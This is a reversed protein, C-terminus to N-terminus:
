LLVCNHFTEGDPKVTYSTARRDNVGNRGLEHVPKSQKQLVYVLSDYCYIHLVHLKSLTSRFCAISLSLPIKRTQTM